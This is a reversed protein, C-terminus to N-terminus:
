TAWPLIGEPLQVVAGQRAGTIRQLLDAADEARCAATLCLLVHVPLVLIRPM